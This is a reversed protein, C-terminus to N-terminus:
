PRGGRPPLAGGEALAQMAELRTDQAELWALAPAEHGVALARPDEARHVVGLALGRGWPRTDLYASRWRVQALWGHLAVWRAQAEAGCATVGELRLLLQRPFGGSAALAQLAAHLQALTGAELAGWLAGQLRGEAGPELAFGSAGTDSSFEM